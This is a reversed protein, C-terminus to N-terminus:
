EAPMFLQVLVSSALIRPLLSQQSRPPRRVSRPCGPRDSRRRPRCTAPRGCRCRRRGACRRCRSRRDARRAARPARLPAHPGPDHAPQQQVARGGQGAPHRRQLQRPTRIVSVISRAPPVTTEGYTSSVPQRKSCSTLAAPTGDERGNPQHAARHGPQLRGPHLGLAIQMQRAAPEVPIRSVSAWIPVSRSILWTITDRSRVAPGDDPVAHRDRLVELGLHDLRMPSSLRRPVFTPPESLRRPLRRRAASSRRASFAGCSVTSRM